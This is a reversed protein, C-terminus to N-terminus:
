KLAQILEPLLLAISDETQATYLNRDIVTREDTAIGHQIAPKAYPHLAMKKGAAIGANEFMVAAACHGAIIKGLEAFRAIVAFMDQYYPKGANEGFKMVADGCAFVLADYNGEQGKLEAITHNLELDIGSNTVIEKGESVAFTEYAIGNEFFAELYQFLGSGNVPNLAIVAVKKEM